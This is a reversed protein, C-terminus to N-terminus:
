NSILEFTTIHESINDSFWIDPPQHYMSVIDPKLGMMFGAIGQFDVTKGAVIVLVSIRNRVFICFLAFCVSTFSGKKLLLDEFFV